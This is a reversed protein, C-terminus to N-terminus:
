GSDRTAVGMSGHTRAMVKSAIRSGTVTMYQATLGHTLAKATSREKKTCVRTAHATLGSRKVLDM